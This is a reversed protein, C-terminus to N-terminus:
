TVRATEAAVVTGASALVFAGSALGGTRYKQISRVTQLAGLLAAIVIVATIGDIKDKLCLYAVTVVGLADSLRDLVQVVVPVPPAPPKSPPNTSPVPKNEPESM